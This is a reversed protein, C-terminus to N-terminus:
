NTSLLPESMAIALLLTVAFKFLVTAVKFARKLKAVDLTNPQGGGWKCGTDMQQGLWPRKMRSGDQSCKIRPSFVQQDEGIPPWIKEAMTTEKIAMSFSVDTSPLLSLLTTRPVTPLELTGFSGAVTFLQAVRTTPMSGNRHGKVAIAAKLSRLLPLQLPLQLRDQIAPPSACVNQYSHCFLAAVNNNKNKNSAAALMLAM